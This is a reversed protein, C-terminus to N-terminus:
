TETEDPVTEDGPNIHGQHAKIVTLGSYRTGGLWWRWRGTDAWIGVYWGPEEIVFPQSITLSAPNTNASVMVEKEHKITGDPLRVSVYMRVDNNGPYGTGRCNILAHVTWTGAEDFVVHGGSTDIHAGQAPGVRGKFPLKRLTSLGWAANINQTQYASCYGQPILNIRSNASDALSWTELNVDGAVQGASDLDAEFEGWRSQINDPPVIIPNDGSPKIGM